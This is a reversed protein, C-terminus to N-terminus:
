RPSSTAWVTRRKASSYPAPGRRSRAPRAAGTTAGAGRRSSLGPAGPRRPRRCSPRRPRCPSRPPAGGRQRGRGVAGLPAPRGRGSRTSAGAAPSVSKRGARFTTIQSAGTSRSWATRWSAARAAASTPSEASSATRRTRLRSASPEVNRPPIASGWARTTPSSRGPTASPTGRPPSSPAGSGISATHSRRRGSTVGPNTGVAPRQGPTAAGPRGRRARTPRWDRRRRRRAGGTPPRRRARGRRATGWGRRM